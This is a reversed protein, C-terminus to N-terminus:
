GRFGPLMVVCFLQWKMSLKKQQVAALMIPYDSLDAEIFTLREGAEVGGEKLMASVEAERNLSRLTTRVRYGANLLQIICHAAIFGAGGTVLVLKETNSNIAM